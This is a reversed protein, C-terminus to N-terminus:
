CVSFVFRNAFPVIFLIQPRPKVKQAGLSQSTGRTLAGYMSRMSKEKRENQYVMIEQHFFCESLQRLGGQKMANLAPQAAKFFCILSVMHNRNTIDPPHKKFKSQYNRKPSKRIPMRKSDESPVGSGISGGPGRLDSIPSPKHCETRLGRM